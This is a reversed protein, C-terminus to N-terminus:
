KTVVLMDDPGMSVHTGFNAGERDLRAQIWHADDGSARELRFRRMRFPILRLEALTGSASIQLLYALSLDSRYQEYGSIGEYDTIFDGCGYLILREHYIEIAKAHHSSHGHVIHFGAEDILAHAFRQQDSPVSYGWNGGWHLSAVLLDGENRVARIYQAISEVQTASLDPLLNVGAHDKDAAWSSPIGSSELGFAFVLVRRGVPLPIQAPAGAQEAALGAGAHRLQATDLTQLTEILGATGFDMVHNNSLVCCDIKAASIAGVNAPNMRYNIGKPAFSNGTTISTELNIIRADPKAQELEALADGWVYDFAVGRPIPGNKREALAVYDKASRSYGEHLVPDGPHPLIQDIGRGLMVDGSLFLRVTKTM